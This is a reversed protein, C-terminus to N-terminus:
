HFWTLELWSLCQKEGFCIQHLKRWFCVQHAEQWSSVEDAKQLFVFKIHCNKGLVFKILKKGHFARLVSSNQGCEAISSHLFYSYPPSDLFTFKACVVGFSYVDSKFTLKFTKSVEPACYGLNRSGGSSTGVLQVLGFDSVAAELQQNILINSSKINGHASGEQHLYAIGKAAGLAIRVRAV